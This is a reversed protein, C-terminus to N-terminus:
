CEKGVRREESRKEAFKSTQVPGQKIQGAYPNTVKQGPYIDTILKQGGKTFSQTAKSTSQQAKNVFPTIAKSSAENGTVTLGKEAVPAAKGALKSSMRGVFKGVFPAALGIGAGVSTNLLAGGVTPDKEDQLYGTLAYSGGTATSRVAISKTTAQLLRKSLATKVVTGTEALPSLGSMGFTIVDSRFLM